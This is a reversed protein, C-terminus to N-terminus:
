PYDLMTGESCFLTYQKHLYQLNNGLIQWQFKEKLPTKQIM